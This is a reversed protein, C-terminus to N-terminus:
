RSLGHRAQNTFIIKRRLVKRPINSFQEILLCCILITLGTTLTLGTILIHEDISQLFVGQYLIALTVIRREPYRSFGYVLKHYLWGFFMGEFLRLLYTGIFGFDHLYRRYCTYINSFFVSGSNLKSFELIRNKVFPEFGFKTLVSSVGYLTESGESFNAGTFNRVYSDLNKVASSAYVMIIDWFSFNNSKGTLFGLAYFAVALSCLVLVSIQAIRKNAKRINPNNRAILFYALFIFVGILGFLQIRAGSLIILLVYLIVPISYSINIKKEVIKSNLLAFAFFYAISSGFLLTFSSMGGGNTRYAGLATETSSNYSIENLSRFSMVGMVLLILSFMLTALRRIELKFLYDTRFRSKIKSRKSRLLSKAFLEGLMFFINGSIILIPGDPGIQMGYYPAAIVFIFTSLLFVFNTVFSPSMLTKGFLYYSIITLAILGCLLGIGQM